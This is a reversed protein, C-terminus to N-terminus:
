GHQEVKDLKERVFSGIAALAQKAEPLIVAYAQFVHWMGPWVGLTADVGAARANEALRLSDSLLIEDEGVQVFLSPLGRLDKEFLVLERPDGGGLFAEACALVHERTIFPDAGARTTYSEGDLIQSLWPSLLFAAAASEEGSDRLALLTALAVGGGASDGGIVIEAAAVGNERLWRFSRLGDEFAAPHPYEPALRYDVLLVRVGSARSIRAALDRHTSCSCAVYGGGHFYLITRSDDADLKRSRVWEAPVGGASVREIEVRRPRPQHRALAEEARRYEIVDHEGLAVLRRLLREIVLSRVLRSRFSPM